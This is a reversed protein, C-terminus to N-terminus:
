LKQHLELKFLGDIESYPCWQRATFQLSVPIQSTLDEPIGGTLALWNGLCLKGHVDLDASIKIVEAHSLTIILRITPNLTTLANQKSLQSLQRFLFSM